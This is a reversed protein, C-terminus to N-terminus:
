AVKTARIIGSAGCANGNSFAHNCWVSYVTNASVTVVRTTNISPSGTADTNLVVAPVYTGRVYSGADIDSSDNLFVALWSIAAATSQLDVRGTLIWTGPTLTVSTLATDVQSTLSPNFGSDELQTVTNQPFSVKGDTAIHAAVIVGNLIDSSGDSNSRITTTM